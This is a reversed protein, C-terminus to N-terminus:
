VKLQSQNRYQHAEEIVKQYWIASDKLIREQTEYDVHVLGFRLSYGATWEWNDLLSWAYYGRIDMGEGIAKKTWELFGNLYRIREEDHIKGDVVAENCSHTGNETIYIPIGIQYDDNLIHIADYVAKPYYENGNDLFNGGTIKERDKELLTPDVCDVVRNYCNLGFFDLPQHILEMDGERIEPMCHHEKMYNLLSDSYAGRFIPNLYSRYSKENELEALACDGPHEPRLPHHHWIDVVIGIESNILHEERFRKVAEGHACLLHHNATRGSAENGRAPAFPGGSYGLYTAIPENMTSWMPIDEGFTRFLLSAYEAYWDIIERNCWGGKKDLADPLDWHYLTANPLIEKQHLGDVLRKYYDLGKENVKGIGEPFIRSWSFSFRYSDVGLEKLLALDEPLRHYQDCAPEPTSGDSITGKKGAFTDWISPGRGDTSAAGEVQCASTAAGFIFNKPFNSM